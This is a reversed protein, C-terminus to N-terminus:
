KIREGSKNYVIEYEPNRKYLIWAQGTKIHKQMTRILGNIGMAHNWKRNLGDWFDDRSGKTVAVKVDPFGKLKAIYDGPKDSRYSGAFGKKLHKYGNSFYGSPIKLPKKPKAKQQAIRQTKAVSKEFFKYAHDLAQDITQEKDFKNMAGFKKGDNSIRFYGGAKTNVLFHSVGKKRIQLVPEFKFVLSKNKLQRPSSVLTVKSLKNLKKFAASTKLSKQVDNVNFDKIEERIIERLKSETIKM